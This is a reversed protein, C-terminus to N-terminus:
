TLYVYIRNCRLLTALDSVRTARVRHSRSRLSFLPLDHTMHPLPHNLLRPIRLAKAWCTRWRLRARDVPALLLSLNFM